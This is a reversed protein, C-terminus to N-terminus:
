LELLLVRGASTMGLIFCAIAAMGPVNKRCDNITYLVLGLQLVDHGKGGEGDLCVERM